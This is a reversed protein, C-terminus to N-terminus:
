QYFIHVKYKSHSPTHKLRVSTKYFPLPQTNMKPVSRIESLECEIKKQSRDREERYRKLSIFLIVSKTFCKTGKGEWQCQTSHLASDQSSSHWRTTLQLFLYFKSLILSSIKQASELQKQSFPCEAGTGELDTM